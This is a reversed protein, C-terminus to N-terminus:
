VGGMYSSLEVGLEKLVSFMKTEISDHARVKLTRMTKLKNQQDHLTDRAKELKL